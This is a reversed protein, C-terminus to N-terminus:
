SGRRPVSTAAWYGILALASATVMVGFLGASGFMQLAGVVQAALASALLQVFSFLGSGAGARPGAAALMGAQAGPLAVGSAVALLAAPM